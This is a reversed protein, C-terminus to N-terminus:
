GQRSRKEEKSLEALKEELFVGSDDNLSPLKDLFVNASNKIEALEKELLKRREMLQPLNTQLRDNTTKIIEAMINENTSLEKIRGLVLNEIENAPVKFKCEKNKCIYYYYRVRKRSTGSRGEM